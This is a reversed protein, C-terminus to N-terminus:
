EGQWGIVEMHGIWQKVHQVYLWDVETCYDSTKHRSITEDATLGANLRAATQRAYVRLQAQWDFIDAGAEGYAAATAPWYTTRYQLLGKDLGNPNEARPNGHSEQYVQALAGTFWYEIGEAQLVEYLTRQIEEPILDGAILYIQPAAAASERETTEKPGAQAVTREENEPATEQDTEDAATSLERELITEESTEPEDTTEEQTSEQTRIEATEPETETEETIEEAETTEAQFPGKKASCDDALVAIMAILLVACCAVGIQYIRREYRTM